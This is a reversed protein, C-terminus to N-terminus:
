FGTFAYVDVIDPLGRLEALLADSPDTDLTLIMLAEAQPSRRGLHLQGINVNHKGVVTGVRGVVGPADRHRTILARDPWVMDVPIGLVRSIAVGQPSLVVAVETDRRGEIRLALAEEEGETQDREVLLSLGQRAAILLANVTNVREDVRDQLFAALAAQKLWPEVSPSLTPSLRLVLPADAGANVRSFVGGLIRVAKDLQQLNKEPIDPIPVNVLNPPTKSSLAELVGRATM